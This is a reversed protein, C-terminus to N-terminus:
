SSLLVSHPPDAEPSGKAGAWSGDPGQMGWGGALSGRGQGWGWGRWSSVLGSWSRWSPLWLSCGPSCPVKTGAPFPGTLWEELGVGEVVM